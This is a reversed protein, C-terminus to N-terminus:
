ARTRRGLSTTGALCALVLIALSSPEPTQATGIAGPFAGGFGTRWLDYDLANVTGDRNGDAPLLDGVQGLSDRWLAYDMADVVGDSNFDGQLDRTVVISMTTSKYTAVLKLMAAVEPADISTFEGALGGDASIILYEDGLMPTFQFEVELEGSITAWGSVDILPETDSRMVLNADLMSGAALDLNRGVSVTGDSQLESNAAVLLDNAVDLTAGFGLQLVAGNEISLQNAVRQGVGFATVEGPTDISVVMVEDPAVGEVWTSGSDWNGGGTSENRIIRVFLENVGDTEQDARYLVRRGDPSFKVNSSEVDGGSVLLGNVKVATGGDSPVIYLESVFDTDQDAVYLVQTGDPSFQYGTLAVNGGAVLEGNLKIPAESGDTKVSYLEFVQDVDQDAHYLVRSSDSSISFDASVDGGAVLDGSLKVAATTGDSAVTFLEFKEDVIQDARYIVTSSDPTFQASIVQGGTLVLPGNLLVPATSADAPASYIEFIGDEFQDGRYLVRSSDPSFQYDEFIDGGAPLQTNLMVAPGSGDAPVTWINKPGTFTIKDQREQFIATSGDPSLKYNLVDGLITTVDTPVENGMDDILIGVETSTEGFRGSISEPPASGDVPVRFMEFDETDFTFDDMFGNLELDGLFFVASSDPTFRFDGVEGLLRPPLVPVIFGDMDIEGDLEALDGSVLTAPASGDSPATYIEEFGAVRVDAQFAVWMSDPSFKAGGIVDRGSAMPLNLRVAASSGDAPATFLEDVGDRLQDARYMVRQSDPSFTFDASAVNGGTVLNGSVKVADASGDSLVSFLEFTNNTADARYLVRSSDPSFQFDFVDGTADLPTNLKIPDAAKTASVGLLLSTVTLAFVINRPFSLRAM